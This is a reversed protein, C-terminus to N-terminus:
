ERVAVATAGCTLGGIAAEAKPGADLASNVAAGATNADAGLSAGAACRGADAELESLEGRLKLDGGSAFSSGGALTADASPEDELLSSLSLSSGSDRMPWSASVGGALRWRWTYNKKVEEKSEHFLRIM